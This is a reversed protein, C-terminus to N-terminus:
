PRQMAGTVTDWGRVIRAPVGDDYAGVPFAAVLAEVDDSPASAVVQVVTGNAQWVVHWPENSLVLVDRGAVQERDAHAVAEPDLRGPQEAVVVSERPGVLDLELLRGHPAASSAQAAGASWDDCWRVAGVSWGAPLASPFAWHHARLWGTVDGRTDVPVDGDADASLAALRVSDAPGTSAGLLGLDTGPHSVPAVEPRDGLAFLMAAVAGLGAVSGAAIRVPSRRPRVRGRLPAGRLAELRGSALGYSAFAATAAPPAFPDVPPVARRPEGPALSLLRATLDPTPDMDPAAALARRTARAAALEEACARCQAVHATAREAEEPSLQGDLYASIWPGRHSM